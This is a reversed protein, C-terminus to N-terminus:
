VTFDYRIDRDIPDLLYSVVTGMNKVSVSSKEMWGTEADGVLDHFDKSVRIMSAQSTQEM